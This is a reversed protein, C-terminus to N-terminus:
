TIGPLQRCISGSDKDSNLVVAMIMNLTPIAKIVLHVALSWRLTSILRDGSTGQEASMKAYETAAQLDVDVGYGL